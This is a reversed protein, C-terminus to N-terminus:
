LFVLIKYSSFGVTEIRFPMWSFSKVSHLNTNQWSPIYRYILFSNWSMHKLSFYLFLKTYLDSCFIIEWSYHFSWIGSSSSWFIYLLDRSQRWHSHESWESSYSCQWRGNTRSGCCEWCNTQTDCWPYLNFEGFQFFLM